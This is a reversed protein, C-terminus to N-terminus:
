TNEQNPSLGIVKNNKTPGAQKKQDKTEGESNDWKKKRWFFKDEYAVSYDESSGEQRYHRKLNM